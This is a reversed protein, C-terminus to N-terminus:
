SLSDTLPGHPSHERILLPLKGAAFALFLAEVSTTKFRLFRRM